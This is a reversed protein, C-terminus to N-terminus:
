ADGHRTRAARRSRLLVVGIVLLAALCTWVGVRFSPDSYEFTLRHRGEPIEVGRFATNVRWITTEEGDVFARWGANHIESVALLGAREAQVDLEIADPEYRIIAARGQGAGPPNLGIRSEVVSLSLSEPQGM